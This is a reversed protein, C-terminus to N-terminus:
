SIAYETDIVLPANTGDWSGTIQVTVEARSTGQATHQTVVALGNCTIAIHEDEANAVFGIGDLSRKRLIIMTETHDLAKGVPPVGTSGFAAASLGTLTIVPKVSPQHMHRDYLDSGCGITEANQGFDISVSQACGFNIVSGTIGLTIAGLTHQINDRVLTFLAVNDAITLPHAAGDSSFLLAEVDLQASQRHQCTLRRPILLGRTATYTRHENAAVPLGDDGLKALQSTLNNTGDIKAGTSGTVALAAQVARTAFQIRPKQATIAVFQPFPTGIGSDNQVEPNTANTLNTLGALV